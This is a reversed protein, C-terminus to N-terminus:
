RQGHKSCNRPEPKNFNVVPMYTVKDLVAGNEKKVKDITNGSKIVM